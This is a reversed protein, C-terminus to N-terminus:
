SHALIGLVLVANVKEIRDLDGLEAKLTSIINLACHRAAEQGTSNAEHGGGGAIIHMTKEHKFDRYSNTSGSGARVIGNM